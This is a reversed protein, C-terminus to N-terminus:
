RMRPRFSPSACTIRLAPPTTVSSPDARQGDALSQQTGALDDQDVVGVAAHQGEGVVVELTIDLAFGPDLRTPPRPRGRRPPSSTRCDSRRTSALREDGPVGRQAPEDEVDGGSLQVLDSELVRMGVLLRSIACMGPTLALERRSPLNRPTTPITSM